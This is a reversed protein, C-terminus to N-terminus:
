GHKAITVLLASWAGVMRWYAIWCRLAPPHDIEWQRLNIIEATM